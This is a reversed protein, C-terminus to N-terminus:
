LSCFRHADSIDFYLNQIKVLTRQKFDDAVCADIEKMKNSTFSKIMGDSADNRRGGMQCTLQSTRLM